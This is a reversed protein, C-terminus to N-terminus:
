RPWGKTVYLYCGLALLALSASLLTAMTKRFLSPGSERERAARAAVERKIKALKERRERKM